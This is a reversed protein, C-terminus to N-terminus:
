VSVAIGTKRLDIKPYRIEDGEVEESESSVAEWIRLLTIKCVCDEKGQHYVDKRRIGVLCSVISQVFGYVYM